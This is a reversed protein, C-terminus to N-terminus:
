VHLMIWFKCGIAMWTLIDTVTHMWATRLEIFIPEVVHCGPPVLVVSPAVMYRAGTRMCTAKNIIHKKKEHLCVIQM